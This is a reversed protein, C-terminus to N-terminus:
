GRVIKAGLERGGLVHLHLHPILQGGDKGHNIIIRYGKEDIGVKRAINRAAGLLVGLLKEDDGSTVGIGAIHKRPIILIHVPAQPHIDNIAIWDSDEAVIQAPIEKAAIKCFIDKEM